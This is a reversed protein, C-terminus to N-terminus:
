KRKELLPTCHDKIECSIINGQADFEIDCCEFFQDRLKKRARQIRSKAGPLSIDLKKAIEKQPIGEIDSWILPLAYEEPLLAILDAVDDSLIQQFDASNLHNLNIYDEAQFPKNQQRFYDAITNRAVQFLWSKLNKIEKDSICSEMTKLFIEQLLDDATSADRIQQRIFALLHTSYRRYINHIDCQM